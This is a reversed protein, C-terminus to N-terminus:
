AQSGSASVSEATEGLSPRESLPERPLQIQTPSEFDATSGSPISFHPSRVLPGLLFRRILGALLALALGGLLGQFLLVAIETRLMAIAISAVIAFAWFLFTRGLRYPFLALSLFCATSALAVLWASRAVGAYCDAPTGLSSFLYQNATAPPPAAESAAAWVELQAQDM